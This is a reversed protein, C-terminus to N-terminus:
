FIKKEKKLFHTAYEFVVKENIPIIPKPFDKNVRNGQGAMPIIAM